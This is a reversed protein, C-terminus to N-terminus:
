SGVSGARFSSQSQRRVCRRGFGDYGVCDAAESRVCKIPAALVDLFVTLFEAVEPQRCLVGRLADVVVDLIGHDAATHSCAALLTGLLVRRCVLASGDEM